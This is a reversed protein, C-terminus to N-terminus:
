NSSFKDTLLPVIEYLDGVIGFDCYEFIPANKNNNIAIVTSSDRMGVLHQVQGSIGVAFYIDPKVTEGTLGVQREIPLWKFDESIPRSCGLEAEPHIKEAFVKLLEIDKQTKIGRGCSVIVKASSLDVSKEIKTKSLIKSKTSTKNLTIEIPDFKSLNGDYRNLLSDSVTVVFPRKHLLLKANAIGGYVERMIKLSENKLSADVCSTALAGNLDTGIIAALERDNSCDSLLFLDISEIDIAEKIFRLADMPFAEGMDLYYYQCETLFEEKKEATYLYMESLCKRNTSIVATKM